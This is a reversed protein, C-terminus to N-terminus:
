VLAATEQLRQLELLVSLVLGAAVAVQTNTAPRAVPPVTIEKNRSVRVVLHTLVLGGVLDVQVESEQLDM